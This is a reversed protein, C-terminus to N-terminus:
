QQGDFIDRELMREVCATDIKGGANYVSEYAALSVGSFFPELEGISDIRRTALLPRRGGLKSAGPRASTAPSAAPNPSQYIPPTDISKYPNHILEGLRDMIAQPLWNDPPYIADVTDTVFM